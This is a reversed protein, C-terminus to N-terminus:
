NNAPLRTLIIAVQDKITEIDRSQIAVKADVRSLLAYDRRDHEELTTIRKELAAIEKKAAVEFDSTHQKFSITAALVGLLAISITVIASPGVRQVWTQEKQM